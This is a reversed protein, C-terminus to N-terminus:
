LLSSDIEGLFNQLQVLQMKKDLAVVKNTKNAEEFDKQTTELLDSLSEYYYNKFIPIYKSKYIGGKHSNWSSMSLWKKKAIDISAVYDSLAVWKSIQLDFDAVNDTYIDIDIVKLIEQRVENLKKIDIEEEFLNEFNTRATSMNPKLEDRSTDFIYTDIQDKNKLDGTRKQWKATNDIEGALLDYEGLEGNEKVNINYEGNLYGPILIMKQAEFFEGLDGNCVNNMCVNLEGPSNLKFVLFGKREDADSGVASETAAGIESLIKVINEKKSITEGHWGNLQITNDFLSSSSDSTVYGDGNIYAFNNPSVPAGDTWLGLLTDKKTPLAISIETKTQYDNSYTSVIKNLYNTLLSNKDILYDNKWVMQNIDVLNGDLKLFDWAPLLDKISPANRRASDIKMEGTERNVETAIFHLAKQWWVADWITMGEWMAYADLIGKHPSGVTVVKANQNDYKQLYSRAVLGGMSHGILNVKKNDINKASLFDKLDDALSDLRKRWDYAFIFLDENETYGANKLSNIVGDYEKVFGPIKWNNGAQGTLVADVDWSGGFGPLIVTATREVEKTVLFRLIRVSTWNNNTQLLTPNGIWFVTPRRYSNDLVNNTISYVSGNTSRTVEFHDDLFRITLNHIDSSAPIVFLNTRFLDCFTNSICHKTQLLHKDNLSQWVDFYIFDRETVPDNYTPLSYTPALNGIGFGVGFNTTNPFQYDITVSYNGFEPFPNNSSYVFPFNKNNTSSLILGDSGTSIFGGSNSAIWKSNDFTNFEDKFYDVSYARVFSATTLLLLIFTTVLFFTKKM